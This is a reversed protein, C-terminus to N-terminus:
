ARSARGAAWRSSRWALKPAAPMAQASTWCSTRVLRTFSTATASTSKLRIASSLFRKGRVCNVLVPALQQVLLGLVNVRHVDGRGVVHVRGDRHARHLQALVDIALLRQGM